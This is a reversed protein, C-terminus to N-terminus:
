LANFEQEMESEPSTNQEPVSFDGRNARDEDLIKHLIATLCGPQLYDQGRGNAFIFSSKAAMDEWTMASSNKAVTEFFNRNYPDNII